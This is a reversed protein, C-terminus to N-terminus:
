KLYGLWKEQYAIMTDLMEEVGQYQHIIPDVLLAQLALAQVGQVQEQAEADRLATLWAVWLPRCVM